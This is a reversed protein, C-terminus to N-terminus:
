KRLYPNSNKEQKLTSSPGHGPYINLDEEIDCLRKLSKEIAKYDGGYLDSRGISGAFLTDGTILDSGIKICMGGPTHGPTHIFEVRKGGIEIYDGDEVYIDAEFEQAGCRMNASINKKADILLEREKSHAVVKAGIKEKLNKVYGIHDGHGHTLVIYSVNLDRDEIYKKVEELSGGPDVVFAQKSKGDSIVYTNVGLYEDIFKKIKM